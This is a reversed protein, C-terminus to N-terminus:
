IRLVVWQFVRAVCYWMIQWYKQQPYTKTQSRWQSVVETSNINNQANELFFCWITNEIEMSHFQLKIKTSVSWLLIFLICAHKAQFFSFVFFCFLFSFTVTPTPSLFFFVIRHTPLKHLSKKLTAFTCDEM